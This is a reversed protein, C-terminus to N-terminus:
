KDCGAQIIVYVSDLIRNIQQNSFNNDIFLNRLFTEGYNGSKSFYECLIVSVCDAELEYIESVFADQEKWIHGLVIHAIEHTTIRLRLYVSFNIEESVAYGKKNAYAVNLFRNADIAKAKNFQQKKVQLVKICKDEEWLFNKKVVMPFLEGSIKINQLSIDDVSLRALCSSSGLLYAILSLSIISFYSFYFKKM